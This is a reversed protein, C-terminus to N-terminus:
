KKAAHCSAGSHKPKNFHGSPPLTRKRTSFSISETPCIEKCTYCAFCDPITVKDRKLIAGMVTTPCVAVCKNCAICSEYDVSIKVLSTKEVLWGVFGFPCFLHCWPRYVFLSSLLIIGIFVSGIVGMYPPKYIKFFDIPDVIDIGWLFATITFICLFAFRISNTLLFPPKFQKGIVAKYKDSQNIRFVLDQLAGAHCGWACIYKNALFIITLFIILAVMRPPFIAGTKAYLHIADKVTGMPAPDSGMIIGFILLATFLLWKRIRPTTKRKKLFVFIASLFLFWLAFKLPIKIWNKSAGESALALKQTVMDTVKDASGYEDLKKELDSATQLSFINKLVPNPLSNVKGFQGITMDKEIVIKDIGVPQESKGGWIKTSITSLVVVFASLLVFYIITRGNSNKNM